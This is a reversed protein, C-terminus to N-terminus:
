RAGAARARLGRQYKRVYAFVGIAAEPVCFGFHHTHITHPDWSEGPGPLPMILDTEPPHTALPM